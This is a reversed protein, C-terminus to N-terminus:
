MTEKETHTHYINKAVRYAEVASEFDDFYGLRKRQKFSQIAAIWKKDRKCWYVGTSGTKNDKRVSANHQNIANNVERLNKFSNDSPIRNIHDIQDKPWSGTMYLWALRHALYMKKDVMIRLYGKDYSGVGQGVKQNPNTILKRRFVGTEPDYHLVEKLREQTLESIM